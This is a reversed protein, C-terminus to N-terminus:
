ETIERILENIEIELLPSAAIEASIMNNASIITSHDRDFLKGISPFSLDTIKKIIYIAVSRPMAINRTRKRGYIDDKSVGYKKSVRDVIRDATVGPSEAYSSIYPSLCAKTLEMTVQNGSLFSSACIRKVAGEIERINTKLNDAIYSTIEPPLEIGIMKSKKNIIAIRLELDPPQIDAILGGEFRSVLRDSLTKIEKPPRDSTLIIQKNNEYLANFTHFFEEQTSEKGAIFQIDDILLMDTTRYKDRFTQQTGTRIAEILQNTFDEGKVYTISFKPDRKNVESMIANLLHTKGLGSGGYVFLPNYDTAPNRAVAICAAHAFQNSTGVIFNEFTYDFNLNIKKPPDEEPVVADNIFDLAHSLNSFDVKDLQVTNNIDSVSSSSAFDHMKQVKFFEEDKPLVMEITVPRGLRRSAVMTLTDIYNRRITEIRFRTAIRLMVKDETVYVIYSEDEKGFWLGLSDNPYMKKMDSLINNWLQTYDVFDLM